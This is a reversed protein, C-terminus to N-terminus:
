TTGQKGTVPDIYATGTNYTTQAGKSDLWLLLTTGNTSSWDHPTSTIGAGPTYAFAATSAALVGLAVALKLSRM